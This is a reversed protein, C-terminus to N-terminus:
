VSKTAAPDTPLIKVQNIGGELPVVEVEIAQLYLCECEGKEEKKLREVQKDLEEKSDCYFLRDVWNDEEKILVAYITKKM